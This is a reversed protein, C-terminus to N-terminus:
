NPLDTARRGHRHHGSESKGRHEENANDTADEAHDGEHMHGMLDDHGRSQHMHDASNDASNQAKAPTSLQVANMTHLTNLILKNM